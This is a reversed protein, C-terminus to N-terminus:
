RKADPHPGMVVEARAVPTVGDEDSVYSPKTPDNRLHSEKEAAPRGDNEVKALDIAVGGIDVVSTYRTITDPETM